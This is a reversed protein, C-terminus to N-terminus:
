QRERREKKRIVFRIASVGDSVSCSKNDVLGAEGGAEILRRQDVYGPRGRKPTLVWIGGHPKLRRRWRQLTEVANTEDAATVLAIDVEEDSHALGRGARDLLRRRLDHDLEWSEEELAIAHGFQVGLKDEVSRHSYDREAM